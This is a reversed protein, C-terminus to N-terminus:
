HHVFSFDRITPVTLFRKTTKGFMNMLAQGDNGLYPIITKVCIDDIGPLKSFDRKIAATKTCHRDQQRVKLHVIAEMRELVDKKNEPTLEGNIGNSSLKDYMTNIFEDIFPVLSITKITSSTNNDQTNASTKLRKPPPPNITLSAM